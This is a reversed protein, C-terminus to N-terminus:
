ECANRDGLANDAYTNPSPEELISGDCALYAGYAGNGDMRVDSARAESFLSVSLGSGANEHLRGGRITLVSNVGAAVGDGEGEGLKPVSGSADVGSVEAGSRVFLMGAGSNGRAVSDTVVAALLAEAVVLGPGGNDELVADRVSVTGLEALIGPGENGVARVGELAAGADFIHFGPALGGEGARTGRAEVGRIVVPGDADGLVALGSTACDEIVGGEVTVAGVADTIQLGVNGARRVVVQRLTGQAAFMSIGRVDVDEVTVGEAVVSASSVLVGHTSAGRVLLGEIEATADVVGLGSQRSAHIAVERLMASSGNSVNVGTHTGHVVVASLTVESGMSIRVGRDGGLVFAADVTVRSDVFGMGSGTSEAEDYSTRLMRAQSLTGEAGVFRIGAGHAHQVDIRELTHSGGELLVGLGGSSVVSVDTAELDSTAHVGVGPADHVECRLLTAPAEIRIGAGEVRLDRLTAEAEVVVEGGVVRFGGVVTGARAVTLPGEVTVREPGVGLLRVGEPPDAPTAYEGDLLLVVDGSEATAYADTVTAFPTARTGDADDRRAGPQVHLLRGIDLDPRADKRGADRSAPGGDRVVGPSDDCAVLALLLAPLWLRM